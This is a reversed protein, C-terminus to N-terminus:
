ITEAKQYILGRLLNLKSDFRTLIWVMWPYAGSRATQGGVIKDNEM